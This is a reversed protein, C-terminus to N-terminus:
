SRRSRRRRTGPSAFVDTWANMFPMVEYRIDNAAMEFVRPQDLTIFATTYLTDVNPRVVERFDADPFRRVRQLQNPPGLTLAANARTVDMIVLPYGFLYAQALGKIRGAQLALLLAILVIPALAVLLLRRWRASPFKM